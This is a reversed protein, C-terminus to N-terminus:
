FRWRGFQNDPRSMYESHRPDNEEVANAYYKWLIATDRPDNVVGYSAFEAIEYKQTQHLRTLLEKAYIAFGSSLYSAESCMLIKLKQM